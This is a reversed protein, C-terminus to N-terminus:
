TWYTHQNNLCPFSSIELNFKIRVLFSRLRFICFKADWNLITRPQMRFFLFVFVFVLEEECLCLFVFVFVFLLEHESACQLCVCVWALVFVFLYWGRCRWFCMLSLCLCVFTKRVYECFVVFVFAFAIFFVLGKVCISLGVLVFTSLCYSYM